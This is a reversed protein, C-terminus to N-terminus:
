GHKDTDDTTTTNQAGSTFAQAVGDITLTASFPGTGKGEVRLDFRQGAIFRANNPPTISVNTPAAWVISSATLTALVSGCLVKTRYHSM